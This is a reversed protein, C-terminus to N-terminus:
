LCITKTDNLLKDQIKNKVFLSICVYTRVNYTGINQEKKKHTRFPSISNAM